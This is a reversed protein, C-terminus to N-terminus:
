AEKACVNCLWFGKARVTRCNRCVQHKCVSCPNSNAALRGLPEQCRGCSYESYNGNSHKAGKRRIDLLEAKLKREACVCM